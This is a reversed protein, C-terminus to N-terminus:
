RLNVVFVKDIRSFDILSEIKARQFLDSPNKSIATIKGVILDPAFGNGGVDVSGKSLVIDGLKLTDSLVVNDLIVNGGGQGKVVGLANTELTKATFSFSSNTVLQVSSLFKTTKIVKGILNDKFVVGDGMRIGDVEGKDITYSEPVSIGPLFGPAGVVQAPILNISKPTKTEFQDRLANNDQTLKNQNILKKTLALNQNQLDQYKSNSGISTIFSFGKFISEQVPAFIVQTFPEIQKLFGAKFIVFIIVSLILIILFAPVFSSKKQM